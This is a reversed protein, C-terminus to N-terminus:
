MLINDTTPRIGVSSKNVKRSDFEISNAITPQISYRAKKRPNNEYLKKSSTTDGYISVSTYLPTEAKAVRKGGDKTVSM